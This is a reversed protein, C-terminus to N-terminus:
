GGHVEEGPERAGLLAAGLAAAASADPLVRIREILGLSTLFDSGAIGQRLVRDVEPMLRASLATLGGGLVVLQVDTTLVLIRVAAAVGRALDHRLELALPDGQDAAEFIDLVPLEAPRGWREALARGGALAEICGRGGCRCHPGRPDISLHGIEGASGGAGRWVRGGLVLAAAVGTGLNLYAMSAVPGVQAGAGLAAAKVDNDVLVPVGLARQLPEVLDLETIGLNVAHHIVRGGPRLQGPMGIGISEFAATEVALTATLQRVAELITALVGSPGPRTALRVRGVLEGAADVAVAETKTGGVDIGIRM